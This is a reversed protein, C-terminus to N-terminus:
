RAISENLQILATAESSALYERGEAAYYGAKLEGNSAFSYRLFQLTEKNRRRLFGETINFMVSISADNMQDSLKRDQRFEPRKILAGVRNCQDRAAQWVRLDEFRYVGMRRAIARGMGDDTHPPGLVLSWPGLVSWASLCPGLVLCWTGPVISYPKIVSESAVGVVVGARNHFFIVRGCLCFAASANQCASSAM